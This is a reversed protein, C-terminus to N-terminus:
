ASASCYLSLAPCPTFDFLPSAALTTPPSHAAPLRLPTDKGGGCASRRRRARSAGEGGRHARAQLAEGGAQPLHRGPADHTVGEAAVAQLRELGCGRRRRRRRRQGASCRGEDGGQGGSRLPRRGAARTFFPLSDNCHHTTSRAHSTENYVRLKTVRASQPLPKAGGGSNSSCTAYRPV